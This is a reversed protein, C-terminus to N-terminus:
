GERRLWIGARYLAVAVALVGVAGAVVSARHEATVVAVTSIAALPLLGGLVAALAKLLWGVMARRGLMRATGIVLRPLPTRRRLTDAM